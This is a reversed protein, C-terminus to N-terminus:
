GPVPGLATRVLTRGEGYWSAYATGPLFEDHAEALLAGLRARLREVTERSGEEGALDRLQFPDVTKDFLAERGELWRVFTHRENRVARWEPRPSGSGFNALRSSYGMMLVGDRDPPREGRLTASLDLGDAEPPADIGALACLTPLHDLPAFPVAARGGAPITGPWRFLLPVDVSEAYPVLKGSLGHSGLMEGHDSTLVLLTSGSLGSEDLFSVLRGVCDDLHRIMALYCRADTVLLERLRPPVNPRFSAPPAVQEFYGPACAERTFPPHPPHPAVILLFPRDDALRERMYAIAQDVLVDTEYRGTVIRRPEDRYFWYNRYDTHYNYAEWHRFGLRQPGPPTFEAESLAPAAAGEDVPEDLGSVGASLHWKGLYATDYGAGAFLQALCHPNQAPSAEVRNIVIGSHTPYRGTMLMGRYPTCLPCTSLANDFTLGERALADIRPTAILSGGYPGLMDPRLQDAYLFV